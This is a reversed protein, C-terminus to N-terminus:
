RLFGVPALARSLSAEGKGYITPDCNPYCTLTDYRATDLMISSSKIADLNPFKQRLIAVYGAVRPAAFSTGEDYIAASSNYIGRGDAVLFIDAYPGAKNSYSAISGGSQNLAGVIISKDKYQPSNHFVPNTPDCNSLNIICSGNGAAKVFVADPVVSTNAYTLQTDYSAQNAIRNTSTGGLSLNVVKLSQYLLSSADTGTGWNKLVSFLGNTNSQYTLFDSRYISTDKAVGYYPSSLNITLNQASFYSGIDIGDTWTGSETILGTLQSKAGGTIMSVQDGHPMKLYANSSTSCTYTSVGLVNIYKCGTTLPINTLDSSDNVTFDDLIGVKVGKGTWGQAWAARIDSTIWVGQFASTTKM